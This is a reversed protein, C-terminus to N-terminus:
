DGTRTGQAPFADKRKLGEYEAALAALPILPAFVFNENFDRENAPDINCEHTLILFLLM